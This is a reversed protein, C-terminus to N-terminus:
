WPTFRSLARIEEADAELLFGSTLADDTAREFRALFEERGGPYLRARAEADLPRTTGFLFAFEAGTQGLGSLVASPAEVWPSRLGGRAIGNEDLAFPGETSLELHPATPPPEGGAAWRELHALGAQLVYHQQPGANMPQGMKMGYAEDTPALLEALREASLSGDDHASAVLLYTDAHAAGAIEWLRFREGDPQRSGASGLGVVDTESQITLVPVRLDERIRQSGAMPSQPPGEERVAVASAALSGRDIKFTGDLPAGVGGRGHILFGDYVQADPDVENVYTVLFIASQSEGIALLRPPTLGGLLAGSRVVRGAQSFVDYSFADGPHVLSGYREVNVKKLPLSVAAFGGGEIGVRQASVGVWAAGERMLHRHTFSWDPGADVGGAVNLWEVVVTGN